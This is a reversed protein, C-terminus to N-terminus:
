FTREKDKNEVDQEQTKGNEHQCGGPITKVKHKSKSRDERGEKPKQQLLQPPSQIFFELDLTTGGSGLLLLPAWVQKMM